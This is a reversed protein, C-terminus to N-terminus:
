LYAMRESLDALSQLASMTHPMGWKRLHGMASMRPSRACIVQDVMVMVTPPMMVIMMVVRVAIVIMLIAPIMVVVIAVLVISSTANM